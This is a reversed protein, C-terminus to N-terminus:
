DLLDRIMEAVRDGFLRHDPPQLLSVVERCDSLARASHARLADLADCLAAPAPRADIVEPFARRGLLLNPLGIDPVRLLARALLRMAPGASYVVVPPTASLAAELSATGSACLALDYRSLVTAAGRLPDAACVGMGHAVASSRLRDAVLRDVSPALVLEASWGSRARIWQRAAEVLSPGLARAEQTRSGCLVVLRRAPVDNWTCQEVAPHGVYRADYGARRWLREEFPLIVALRDACRHMTRLRSSRWAWVQPAACWLVRIGQARLERGLREHFSTFGVLLAARPRHSMAWTRLTRHAHDIAAWRKAVQAVGMLGQIDRPVLEDLGAAASAAGGMGAALVSRGLATLTLAAMRDGSAEGSSVLLLPSM